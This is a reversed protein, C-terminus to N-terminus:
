YNEKWKKLSVLFMVNLALLLICALLNAAILCPVVQNLLPGVVFVLADLEIDHYYPMMNRKSTEDFWWSVIGNESTSRALDVGLTEGRGMKVIAKEQASRTFLILNNLGLYLFLLLVVTMSERSTYQGWALALTLIVMRWRDLMPDLYAGLPSALKKVRAVTGDVCDFLYNIEFLIAGIVLGSYCGSCFAVAAGIIFLFSGLTIANPSINTRNIFFLSLRRAFPLIFLMAWWSKRQLSSEVERLTYLTQM